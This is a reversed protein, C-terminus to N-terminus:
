ESQAPKVRELKEFFEKKPTKFGLPVGCRGVIEAPNGRVMTLPEVSRSVVSGAAVVAGKGITVDPLIISGPGIFVHDEIRVTVHDRNKIKQKEEESSRFHGIITTRIGISIDNGISILHPYSTEIMVDSGIFVDQGVKVGRWRHCRVRWTRAGPAFRAVLQLFRNKLDRILGM